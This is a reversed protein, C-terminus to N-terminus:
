LVPRFSALFPILHRTTDFLLHAGWTQGDPGTLQGHLSTMSEVPHAPTIDKQGLFRYPKGDDGTFDFEYRIIRQGIPDIVITGALARNAALGEAEVFGDIAVKHDHLFQWVSEARATCQFSLRREAGDRQFKGSMTETFQFGLGVM